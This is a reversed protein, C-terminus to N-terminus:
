NPQLDYWCCINKPIEPKQNLLFVPYIVYRKTVCPLGLMWMRSENNSTNNKIIALFYIADRDLQIAATHLQLHLQLDKYHRMHALMTIAPAYGLQASQNIIELNLPYTIFGLFYLARRDDIHQMLVNRFEFACKPVNPELLSILWKADPHESQKAIRIGDRICFGQEEETM